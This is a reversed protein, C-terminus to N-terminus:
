LCARRGAHDPCRASANRCRRGVIEDRQLTRSIAATAQCSRNERRSMIDEGKAIGVSASGYCCVVLTGNSRQEDIALLDPRDNHRLATLITPRVPSIAATLENWELLAVM